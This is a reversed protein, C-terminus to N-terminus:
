SKRGFVRGATWLVWQLALWPFHLVMLVAGAAFFAVYFIVANLVLGVLIVPEFQWRIIMAGLAFLWFSLVMVHLFMFRRPKRRRRVLQVNLWDAISMVLAIFAMCALLTAIVKVGESRSNAGVLWGGALVAISALLQTSSFEVPHHELGPEDPETPQRGEM